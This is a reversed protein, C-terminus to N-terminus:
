RAENKEKESLRKVPIIKPLTDTPTEIIMVINVRQQPLHEACHKSYVMQLNKFKEPIVIKRKEAQTDAASSISNIQLKVSDPYIYLECAPGSVLNPNDACIQESKNPNFTLTEDIPPESQVSRLSIRKTKWDVNSSIKVLWPLGLIADYLKISFKIFNVFGKSLGPIETYLPSESAQHADVVLSGDLAHISKHM